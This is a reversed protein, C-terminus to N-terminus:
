RAPVPTSEHDDDLTAAPEILHAVIAITLVGPLQQLENTRDALAGSIASELVVVLKNPNGTEHLEVDPMAAVAARVADCGSSTAQIVLSAIHVLPQAAQAPSRPILLERRSLHRV